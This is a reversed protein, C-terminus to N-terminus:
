RECSLKTPYVKLTKCVNRDLNNMTLYGKDIQRAMAVFIPTLEKQISSTVYYPKHGNGDSFGRDCMEERFVTERDLGEDLMRFLGALAGTRDEGATCHIFVRGGQERRDRMITMADILQECAVQVSSYDKWRFPIHHSQIELTKLAAIEKIVEGRTDNKFIIVDTIGLSPLESVLKGPQRGRYLSEESDVSHFNKITIEAKVSFALLLLLVCAISKMYIGRKINLGNKIVQGKLYIIYILNKRDSKKVLFHSLIASM